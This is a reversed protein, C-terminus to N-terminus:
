EKLMEALPTLDEIEVGALVSVRDRWKDPCRNKLWFIISATDPPIHKETTKVRRGDKGGEIIETVIETYGTARKFLANEVRM